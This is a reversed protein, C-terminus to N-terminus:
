ERWLKTHVLWFESGCHPVCEPQTPSLKMPEYVVGAATVIQDDEKPQTAAADILVQDQPLLWEMSAVQIPLGEPGIIEWATEYGVAETITCSKSGRRFTVTQKGATVINRRHVTKAREVLTTM